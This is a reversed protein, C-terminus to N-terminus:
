KAPMQCRVLVRKGDKMTTAFLFVEGGEKLKLKKRLAEASLPFNRVAINAKDLDKLFPTLEKKNFSSVAVVEFVRGPFRPILGDSTYLHSDPHLKEIDFLASIGKYYGAKIISTNPEYLYHKITDVWLPSTNREDPYYFSIVERPISKDYNLAVIRPEKTPEKTLLFLLEKCENDVSVVHVQNTSTLANLAAKIDLMPSLKILVKDAKSLLKGQLAAVDPECDEIRVVKLGKGSRRSPDIYICDIPSMEDLYAVADANVVQIPLGLAKFNHQATEALAEQKEVYITQSFSSSLFVSDVGFGGTLDVLTKGKILTSKYRATLESSSQELSLAPPFLLDDREYWSPIKHRIKQRGAIQNLLFKDTGSLALQRVDDTLHEEIYQKQKDSLM